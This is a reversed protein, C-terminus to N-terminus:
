KTSINIQISASVPVFNYRQFIGEPDWLGNGGNTNINTLVTSSGNGTSFFFAKGDRDHITKGDGTLQYIGPNSKMYGFSVETPPESVPNFKITTM